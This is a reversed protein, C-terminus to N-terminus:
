IASWSLKVPGSTPESFIITFTIQDTGASASLTKIDLMEESNEDTDLHSAVSVVINNTSVVGSAAVTSIVEYRNQPVTITAVSSLIGLITKVQASTLDEPDGSGASARGKITATSVDALKANTVSNDAISGGGGGSAPFYNIETDKNVSYIYAPDGSVLTSITLKDSVPMGLYPVVRSIFVESHGLNEIITDASATTVLTWVNKPVSVVTM